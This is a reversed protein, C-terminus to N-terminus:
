AASMRATFERLDVGRRRMPAWLDGVDAIRDLATRTYGGAPASQRHGVKIKRWADSRRARYPADLRKGHDRV